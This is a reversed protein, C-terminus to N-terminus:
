QRGRKVEVCWNPSIIYGDGTFATYEGKVSVVNGNCTNVWCHIKSPIKEGEIKEYRKKSFAYTKGKKFEKIM